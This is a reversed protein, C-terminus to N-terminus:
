ITSFQSNIESLIYDRIMISTNINEFNRFHKIRNEKARNLEERYFDSKMLLKEMVTRFEEVSRCEIADDIFSSSDRIDFGNITNLIITPIGFGIAELGTTSATSVAVDTAALIDFIDEHQLLHNATDIGFGSLWKRYVDKSGLSPKIKIIVNVPFEFVRCFCKFYEYSRQYPLSGAVAPCLYTVVPRDTNFGHKKLFKTRIKKRNPLYWSNVRDFKPNGSVIIKNLPVNNNALYDRSENGWVFIKDSAVPIYAALIRFWGHQNTYTLIKRQRAISTVIYENWHRDSITIVAASNIINFFSNYYDIAHIIMCVSYFIDVKFLFDKTASFKCIGKYFQYCKSLNILRWIKIYNYVPECDSYRKKMRRYVRESFTLIKISNDDFQELLNLAMTEVHGPHDIVVLIKRDPSKTFSRNSMSGSNLFTGSCFRLLILAIRRTIYVIDEFLSRKGARLGIYSNYPIRLAEGISIGKYEIAKTKQVLKEIQESRETDTIL